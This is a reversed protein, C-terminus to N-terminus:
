QLHGAFITTTSNRGTLKKHIEKWVLITLVAPTVPHRQGVCLASPVNGATHHYKALDQTVILSALCAIKSESCLRTLINVAKMAKTARMARSEVTEKSAMEVACTLVTVSRQNVM